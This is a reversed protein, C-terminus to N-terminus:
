QIKKQLTDTAIKQLQDNLEKAEQPLLSNVFNVKSPNDMIQGNISQVLIEVLLDQAKFLTDMDIASFDIKAKGTKASEVMEEVGETNKFAKTGLLQWKRFEGANLFKFCKFVNNSIQIDITEREM